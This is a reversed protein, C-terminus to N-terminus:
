HKSRSNHFADPTVGAESTTRFYDKPQEIVGCPNVWIQEICLPSARVCAAHQRFLTGPDVHEDIGDQVAYSTACPM